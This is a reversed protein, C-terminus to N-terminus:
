ASASNEANGKKSENREVARRIRNRLLEYEERDREMMEQAVEEPLEANLILQVRPDASEASQAIADLAGGAEEATVLRARVMLELLPVGLVRGIRRLNEISPESGKRWRAVVSPDLGAARALEAASTRRETLTRELYGPWGEDTVPPTYMRARM